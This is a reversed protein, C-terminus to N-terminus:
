RGFARRRLADGLPQAIFDDLGREVGKQMNLLAIRDRGQAQMVVTLALWPSASEGANAYASVRRVLAALRDGGRRGLVSTDFSEDALTPNMTYAERIVAIGDALRGAELLVLGLERLARSDQHNERLHDRYFTIARETEGAALHSRAEELPTPPVTPPAPPAPTPAAMVMPQVGWQTAYTVPTAYYPANLGAYSYGDYWGRVPWGSRYTRYPWYIATPTEPCPKSIVQDGLHVGVSWKDGQYQGRISLGSGTTIVPVPRIVRPVCHRPPRVVPQTVVPSTTYRIPANWSQPSNGFKPGGVVVGPGACAPFSMLALVACSRLCSTM